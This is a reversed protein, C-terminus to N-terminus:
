QEVRGLLVKRANVGREGGRAFPARRARHDALLQREGFGRARVFEHHLRSRMPLDHQRRLSHMAYNRLKTITYNSAGRDGARIACNGSEAIVCDIMSTAAMVPAAWPM